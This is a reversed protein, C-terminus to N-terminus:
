NAGQPKERSLGARLAAVVRAQDGASLGTSSPLSLADRYLRDAVPCPPQPGCDAHAPSLHMPQWLPRAQIGQTALTRLLARSDPGGNVAEILITYLWWSSNAWPAEVPLTVGPLGALGERYGVAIRRKSTVFAELQELQACGVAALLNTLRYNYGVTDHVYELPDQKAQTSLHRARAAWDPRATVLMGGGGTSIIKNGNFSFCAVDGWGGTTRGHCAAGLSESADEIIALPYGTTVQRLAQMDVPHGLIHVPLVAAVRRGTLRSRLEGNRLECSAELYAQLGPVSMQWTVPDADMFVPRAGAYRIANVPAIFTLDSVLVEDDPQVGAVLLALHLAATGNVTAVATVEGGIRAALLQEFRAVFPGVSSIFNTDLCEKVYEWERGGLNPVCLPIDGPAAPAGPEYPTSM